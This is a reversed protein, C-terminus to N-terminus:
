KIRNYIGASAISYYSVLREIIMLSMTIRSMSLKLALVINLCILNFLCQPLHFFYSWILEGSQCGHWTRQSQSLCSVSSSGLAQRSTSPTTLICWRLYGRIRSSEVSTLCSSCRARWLSNRQILSHIFQELACEFIRLQSNRPIVLPTGFNPVGKINQLHGSGYLRRRM